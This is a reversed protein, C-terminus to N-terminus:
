FLDAPSIRLFEQWPIGGNGVLLIKDPRCKKEFAATGPIKATTGRKVELGIVKGKRELVFDVELSGQRWYHLTYDDRYQPNLLHAGVASEVWRGWAKPRLQM